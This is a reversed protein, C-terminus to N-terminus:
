KNQKQQKQKFVNRTKVSKWWIIFYVAHVCLQHSWLDYSVCNAFVNCAIISRKRLFNYNVTEYMSYFFSVRLSHFYFRQFFFLWFLGNWLFRVYGYFTNTYFLIHWFSNFSLFFSNLLFFPSFIVSTRRVWFLFRVCPLFFVKLNEVQQMRNRQKQQHKWNKKTKKEYVYYKRVDDFNVTNKQRNWLIPEKGTKNRKTQEIRKRSRFNQHM